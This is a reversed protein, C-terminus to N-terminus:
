YLYELNMYVKAAGGTRGAICYSLSGTTLVESYAFKDSQGAVYLNAPDIATAASAPSGNYFRITVDGLLASANVSVNKMIMGVNGSVSAYTGYNSGAGIGTVLIGENAHQLNSDSNNAM